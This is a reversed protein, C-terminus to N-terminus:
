TRDWDQEASTEANSQGTGIRNYDDTFSSTVTEAELLNELEAIYDLCESGHMGVTEAAVTGDPKLSVILKKTM